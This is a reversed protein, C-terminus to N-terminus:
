EIGAKKLFVRGTQSLLRLADPVLAAEVFRDAVGHTEFNIPKSFHLERLGDTFREWDLIGTYPAMHQDNVGDNDHIHFAELRDGLQRMVQRVDLGLLLLHGTDLCFGFLREGAQRNLEDILRCAFSIDSCCASYLKKGHRTFMNELCLTVGHRRAFPILRAYSKLNLEWEEEPTLQLEYPYFFPHIVLRHCGMYACGGIIKELGQLLYESYASDGAMCSPYPAHAQLNILGYKAAADRFPRFHALIETADLDLIPSRKYAKIEPGTLIFLPNVDVGDFGAERILRYAADLGFREVLGGLQISVMSM